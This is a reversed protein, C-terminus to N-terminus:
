RGDARREFAVVIKQAEGPGIDDGLQVVGIELAPASIASVLVKLAVVM